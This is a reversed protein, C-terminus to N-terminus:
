DLLIDLTIGTLNFTTEIINNDPINWDPFQDRLADAVKNPIRVGHSKDHAKGSKGISFLQNGKKYVHLHEEGPNTHPKHKLVSYINTLPVGRNRAENIYSKDHDEFFINIIYNEVKLSTWNM